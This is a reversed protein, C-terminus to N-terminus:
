PHQHPLVTAPAGGRRRWVPRIRQRWRQDLAILTWPIQPSFYRLITETSPHIELAPAVLFLHPPHPLLRTGPFYGRQQLEGLGSSPDTHSLHHHRIRIWYDLGQLALHLDETAKIELVALQHTRTTALLDLMGRDLSRGGGTLAPVEPYVPAPLLDPDLDSLHHRLLSGLWSEPSTRFLPDRPAGLASRRAFLAHVLARLQPATEPTLPTEDPGAGVTVELQRNFSQGAYGLRIRAFDLGHLSFTLEAPSRLRAEARFGPTPLHATRSHASAASPLTPLTPTPHHPLGLVETSPPLLDLISHIAPAFRGGPAVARAHDPAEVLRTVLNGHDAPDLETLDESTEDLEFLQYRAVKSNLWALRTLTTAATGRPVILRLGAYLRRGAAQERLHHLWLLGVTLIGDVTTQSEHANVAVLAVADRGRRLTGRAYAPGFSRELDMASRLAELTDDPFHRHLARELVRLYRTRAADRTTPQRPQRATVLELAHPRPHGLRQASLRLTPGPKPTAAVIRRVLNRDPNWLQLTCRGHDASVSHQTSRLDFLVRGDELLFATPHAALFHQLAAAIDEPTQPPTEPQNHKPAAQASPPM